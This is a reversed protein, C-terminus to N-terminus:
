QNNPNYFILPTQKGDKREGESNYTKGKWLVTWGKHVKSWDCSCRWTCPMVYTIESVPVKIATDSSSLTITLSLVIAFM